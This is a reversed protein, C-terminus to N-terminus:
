NVFVQSLGARCVAVLRNPDTGRRGAQMAIDVADVAHDTVRGFLRQAAEAVQCRAKRALQTRVSDLWVERLEELNGGFLLLTDHIYLLDKGRKDPKRNPFVLIKQAIYSVPNCIKVPLVASVPYLSGPQLEVSWPSALLLDIYRLKEAIVGQIRATANLTGDRRRESGTLPTVFEVFFADKGEGLRYEAKPPQSEGALHERFNARLLLDRLTDTQRKMREPAAIDADRTMLPPYEPILASPHLRFLRFAWGGVVVMDGLYPALATALRGFAAEDFGNKV